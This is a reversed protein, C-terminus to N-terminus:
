TRSAAAREREHGPTEHGPTEHDPTPMAECDDLVEGVWSMEEGTAGRPGYLTADLLRGVEHLREDPLVSGALEACYRAVTESRGRPRGRKAGLKSLRAVTARAWAVSVSRKKRRSLRRRALTELSADDEDDLGRLVIMGIVVALAILSGIALVLLLAGSLDGSSGSSGSGSGTGGSGSSAPGGSPDSGLEDSSGNYGGSEAQDQNGGANGGTDSGSGGGSGAPNSADRRTSGNTYGQGNSSAGGSRGGGYTGNPYGSRGNGTYPNGSPSRSSPRNPDYYPSAPNSPDYYGPDQSNIGYQPQTSQRKDCSPNGILLAAVVAALAAGGIMRLLEGGRMGLVEAAHGSARRAPVARRSGRETDGQLVWLTALAVVLWVLVIVLSEPTKAGIQPALFLGSLFVSPRLRDARKWDMGAVVLGLYPAPLYNPMSRTASSVIGAVTLYLAAVLIACVWGSVTRFLRDVPILHGLAIGTALAAIAVGSLAASKIAVGFGALAISVVLFAM